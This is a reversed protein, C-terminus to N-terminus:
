VTFGLGYTVLGWIGLCEWRVGAGGKGGRSLVGCGGYHITGKLFVVVM